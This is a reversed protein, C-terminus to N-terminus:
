FPAPALAKEAATYDADDVAWEIGFWRRGQNGEGAVYRGLGTEGPKLAVGIQRALNGFERRNEEAYGALKGDVAILDFEVMPQVGYKTEYDPQYDRLEIAVLVGVLDQKGPKEPDAEAVVRKFEVM